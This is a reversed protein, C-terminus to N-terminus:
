YRSNVANNWERSKNNSKVTEDLKELAITDKLTDSNLIEKHEENTMLALKRNNDLLDFNAKQKENLRSRFIEIELEQAKQSGYVINSPKDRNDSM